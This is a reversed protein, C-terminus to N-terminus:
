SNLFQKNNGINEAMIQVKFFLLTIGKVFLALFNRSCQLPKELKIPQKYRIVTQDPARM